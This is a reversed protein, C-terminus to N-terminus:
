VYTWFKTIQVGKFDRLVSGGENEGGGVNICGDEGVVEDDEVCRM